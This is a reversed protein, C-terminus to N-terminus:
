DEGEEPFMAAHGKVSVHKVEHYVGTALYLTKQITHAIDSESGDGWAENIWVNDIYIDWNDVIYIIANNKIM